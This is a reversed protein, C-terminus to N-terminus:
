FYTIKNFKNKLLYSRELTKLGFYDILKDREWVIMNSLETHYNCIFGYFDNSIIGADYQKKILELYNSGITNEYIKFQYESSIKSFIPDYCNYQFIIKSFYEYIENVELYLDPFGNIIEDIIKQQFDEIVNNRICIDVLEDIFKSDLYNM